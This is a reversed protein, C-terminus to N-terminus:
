KKDGQLAYAIQRDRPRTDLELLVIQQWEGLMLKGDIIPITLSPGILSAKLHSHANDDNWAKQHAYRRDRPILRQLTSRFDDLLGQEFEITTLACTSGVTFLSIGGTRLGAEKVVAKVLDTLDVLDDVGETKVTLIGTTLIVLVILGV